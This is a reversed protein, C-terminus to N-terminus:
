PVWWDILSDQDVYTGHPLKERGFLFRIHKKNKKKTKKKNKKAPSELILYYTSGDNHFLHSKSFYPCQIISISLAHHYLM